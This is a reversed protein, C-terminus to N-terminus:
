LVLQRFLSTLHVKAEGETLIRLGLRVLMFYHKWNSLLYLQCFVHNFKRAKKELNYLKM